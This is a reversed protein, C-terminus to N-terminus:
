SDPADRCETDPEPRSSWRPPAGAMAERATERWEIEVRGGGVRLISRAADRRWSMLEVGDREVRWAGLAGGAIEISWRDGTREDVLEGDPAEAARSRLEEPAPLRGLLVAPLERAPLPLELEPLEVPDGAALRCSRRERPARLRGREGEVELVWLPRGFADSAV